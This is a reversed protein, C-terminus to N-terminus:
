LVFPLSSLALLVFGVIVWWPFKRLGTRETEGDEDSLYAGCKPCREAGEYIERGCKPCDVTGVDASDAGFDDDDDDFSDTATRAM